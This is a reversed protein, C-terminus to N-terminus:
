YMTIYSIICGLILSSFMLIYPQDTVSAKYFYLLLFICYNFHLLITIVLNFNFDPIEVFSLALDHTFTAISLAVAACIVEHCHLDHFLSFWFVIFNYSIVIMVVPWLDYLVNARFIVVPYGFMAISAALTALRFSKRTFSLHNFSAMLIMHSLAAAEMTRYRNFQKVSSLVFWLISFFAVMSPVKVAFHIAAVSTLYIRNCLKITWAAVYRMVNSNIAVNNNLEMRGVIPRTATVIKLATRKFYFNHQLILGIIAPVIIVNREVFQIWGISFFFNYQVAVIVAAMLLIIRLDSSSWNEIDSEMIM